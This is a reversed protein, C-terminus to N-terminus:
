QDLKGTIDASGARPVSRYGATSHSCDHLPDGLGADGYGPLDDPGDLLRAQEDEDSDGV